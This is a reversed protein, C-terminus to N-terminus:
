RGRWSGTINVLVPCALVLVLVLGVLVLVLVLVLSAHVVLVVVQSVLVLVFVLVLVLVLGLMVAKLWRCELRAALLVRQRPRYIYLGCREGRRRYRKDGYGM